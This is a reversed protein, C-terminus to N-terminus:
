LFDPPNPGVECWPSLHELPWSCCCLLGEEQGESITILAIPGAAHWEALMPPVPWHWHSSIAEHRLPSWLHHWCRSNADPLLSTALTAQTATTNCLCYISQITLRFEYQSKSFLYIKAGDIQPSTRGYLKPKTWMIHWTMVSQIMTWKIVRNSEVWMVFQVM